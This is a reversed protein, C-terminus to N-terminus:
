KILSGKMQSETAKWPFNASVYFFFPLLVKNVVAQQKHPPPKDPRMIDAVMM